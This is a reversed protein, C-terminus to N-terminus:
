GNKKLLEMVITKKQNDRIIEFTLKDGVKLDMNDLVEQLENASHIPKGNVSIIVDEPLLGAKDASSGRFVRNVIAGEEINLGLARAIYRNLDQVTFGFWYDRDVGGKKLIQNVVDKIRDIPIAFGIGVFGEEYQSGTYIFTNMGIVEGLANVLPGGSNGHNIAADTQIMDLYVRNSETKGWDRHVASIIGVTVTPQDNIEFLGFPNGLALVWEGIILDSSRGLKIYPFNDGEIKLLAIDSVRDTGVIKANFRKGGPLTVVIKAADEIVHENTLIYGDPSIIFGSGLSEVQLEYVRERFLEPFLARWLPDQISYPSRERIRKLQTVNIGVVAPQALAAARTIATQRSIRIDENAEAVSDKEQNILSLLYSKDDQKESRPNPTSQCYLLAIAILFISLSLIRKAHLLKMKILNKM